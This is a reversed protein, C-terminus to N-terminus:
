LPLVRSLKWASSKSTEFHDSFMVVRLPRDSRGEVTSAMGPRSDSTRVQIGGQLEHVM